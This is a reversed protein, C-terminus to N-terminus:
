QRFGLNLSVFVESGTNGTTRATLAWGVIPTVLAETATSLTVNAIRGAASTTTGAATGAVLRSHAAIDGVFDAGANATLITQLGFLIGWFFDNAAVGTSNLQDDIAVIGDGRLTASYGNVRGLFDTPNSTDREFIGLRKGLLTIGSTNRCVVGLLPRNSRRAKSGRINATQRNDPLWYMEGEHFSNILNGDADTGKMTQGM